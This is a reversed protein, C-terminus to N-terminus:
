VLKTKSPQDIIGIEIISFHFADERHVKPRLEALPLFSVVVIPVACGARHNYSRRYRHGELIFGKTSSVDNNDEINSTNSHQKQFEATQKIKSMLSSLDRTTDDAMIVEDSDLKLKWVPEM